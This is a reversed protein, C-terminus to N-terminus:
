FYGGIFSTYPINGHAVSKELDSKSIQNESIQQPEERPIKGYSYERWGRAYRDYGTNETM